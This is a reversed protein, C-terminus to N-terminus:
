NRSQWRHSKPNPIRAVLVAATSPQPGNAVAQGADQGEPVCLDAGVTGLLAELAHEAAGHAGGRMGRMALTEGM